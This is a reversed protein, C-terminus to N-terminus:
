VVELIDSISRGDNEYKSSCARGRQRGRRKSGRRSAQKEAKDTFFNNVRHRTKLRKLRVTFSTCENTVEQQPHDVEFGAVPM